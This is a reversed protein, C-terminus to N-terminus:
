FLIRWQPIAMFQTQYVNEVKGTAPNFRDQQINKNNFLNTIELAWEHSVRKGELRFGVKFDTRFYDKVRISFARDYDSTDYM